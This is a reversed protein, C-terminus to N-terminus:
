FRDLTFPACDIGARGTKMLEATVRAVVPALTYGNSTVCNFFGPTGPMEGLIPAGDININMGAWVRLLHFQSAAPLVRQAVWANGEMAWRLATSAGTAEDLGASWGGGILLSGVATQKLSLHRDAHAVLRSLVPPGPETVMMQLPAGAVPIPRGVMASIRPTWAGACNVIRGARVVGAGTTVRFGAAEREIGLVPADAVIEAGAARALAMAAFTAGLPNVKGESPCFAAGILGHSLKPELARLEAASIIHTEVGYRGELAAKQALFALDRETEAVMLGGTIALEFPELGLAAAAEAMERWLAIAPNGLRLTEAAPNGGAEAKAGFDFSLLQVHLSGANATSAQQGPADRDVALVGLGARALERAVCAGVIGTGVVLVDVERGELGRGTAERGSRPVIAPPTSRRHGVWEEKEAALVSLPIPKAPPRPAFLAFPHPPSGGAEAVLAALVAACNRGQCRGMGTRTLRKVTGSDPGHAAIATRMTGATVGECRCVVTSDAITRATFAPAAFLGWLADQFAEADALAARARRTKAGALPTAGLDRRIADAALVARERAVAAGGLGAGDGIAFVPPLSTRGEADTVTALFGIHRQVPVHRCGLQRALETSPIFGHGLAVTDIRTEEREWGPGAIRCGTVRDEGRCETVRAGWLVPVGRAKLLALYRAGQAMLAPAHRLARAAQRWARWSPREAEEVVAVVEIGAGSLEVALQLNLPGNGGIVVRRGPFVRYARALTQAAGTTMVGPLTWGPIPVPREYAGPALLLRRPRLIRARDSQFVGIEDPKFASWATAEQWIEVGARRAAASRAASEAFQRDLPGGTEQHSTAVPKLYQGGLQPREDVLVVRLGGEALHAAATLGGIGGGIVAVDATVEEAQAPTPVLPRAAEPAPPASGVVMGAEAKVLCARQGGRGDVTVVCDFCAGMGCWLGRTEGKRDRRLAVQGAAALAAAITEGPLLEVPSGDFTFTGGAEGPLLRRHSLRM